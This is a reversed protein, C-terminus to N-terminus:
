SNVFLTASCQVTERVLRDIQVQLEHAPSDQRREIELLDRARAAEEKACAREPAVDRAREHHTQEHKSAHEHGSDAM